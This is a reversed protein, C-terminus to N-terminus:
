EVAVIVGGEKIVFVKKVTTREDFFAKDEEEILTAHINTEKVTIKGLEINVALETAYYDNSGMNTDHCFCGLDATTILKGGYTFTYLEIFYNDIGFAGPSYNHTIILGFYDQAYFVYGTYYAEQGIEITAVSTDPILGLFDVMQTSDIEKGNPFDAFEFPYTISKFGKVFAQLDEGEVNSIGKFVKVPHLTITDSQGYGLLCNLLLFIALLYKMKM